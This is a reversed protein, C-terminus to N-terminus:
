LKKVVKVLTLNYNQYRLNRVVKNGLVTLFSWYLEYTFQATQRLSNVDVKM